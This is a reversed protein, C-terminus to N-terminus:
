LLHEIYGAGELLRYYHFVYINNMIRIDLGNNLIKHSFDYDVGLFKKDERFKGVDKWTNKKFCMVLSSVPYNTLTTTKNNRISMAIERHYGIDRIESIKGEYLQSLTGIRNTLCTFIGTDPHESIHETILEFFDPTLFMVDGDKIVIWDDDNPVLECYENYAKGLNKENTYPVFCWIKM